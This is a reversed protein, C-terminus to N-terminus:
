TLAGASRRLIRWPAQATTGHPPGGDVDDRGFPLCAFTGALRREVLPIRGDAQVAPDDRWPAAWLVPAGGITLDPLHGCTPDWVASVGRAALAIM